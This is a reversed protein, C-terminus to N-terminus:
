SPQWADGWAVQGDIVTSRVEFRPPGDGHSPEVLDFLVLDAPDGQEMGGPRIGLLGAPHDVAMRVAEALSVDAFRMVNAIGTGIPASAGALIQRQGAVVLRGDDLIEVDGHNAQHHGPPLGSLGSMDSILICRRATKVRVFSKVVAPPLHHGDVILSALLRDDALQDWIYNPHRRIMPHAGNGLHTSLRAGADVAARIQESDAATHGIAVIVGSEAVRRIFAVAGDFEVAMTLIRIRGAAAEQFRQFEEWDPRRCHELPHAGRPGEEGSLYPGEVHIGAIRRAAEPSSECAAAITRLAHRMVEFGHTFLTPCSRTLGFADYRRVIAAVKEPTLDPSSFEQGGYGNIQIDFLGPAIWPWKGVGNGNSVLPTVRSIKGRDFDLRVPQGTDYRRGFLQM